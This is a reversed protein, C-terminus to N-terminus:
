PNLKKHPAYQDIPCKNDAFKCYDYFKTFRKKLLLAICIYKTSSDCTISIENVCPGTSPKFDTTRPTPSGKTLPSYAINIDLNSKKEAM